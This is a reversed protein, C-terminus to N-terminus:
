LLNILQKCIYDIEKESLDLPTPLYFGRDALWSANPFEGRPSNLNNCPQQHLPYFFPRTEIGSKLLSLQIEVSRESSVKPVVGYVWYDNTAYSLREVPIGLNTVHMLQSNYEEAIHRKLQRTSDVKNLQSIGLAAQLGGLRFNEGFESHMFRRVPNMALNSLYKMRSALSESNTLIMGGEGSTVHKNAYFSFTSIFGFSGCRRDKYELGHAESADEILKIGTDKIHSIIPDMDVPLGYTHVVIIAKTKPTISAIIEEPVSNWHMADCDVFIPTAGIKKVALLVSIIAFTPLIVEDGPGIDTVRLALELASTGNSVAVAYECGVYDAFQREFKSVIPSSGSIQGDKLAKTVSDIDSTDILPSSVPILSRM